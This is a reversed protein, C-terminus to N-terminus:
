LFFIVFDFAPTQFEPVMKACLAMWPVHPPMTKCCCKASRGGRSPRAFFLFCILSEKGVGGNAWAYYIKCVQFSARRACPFGPCIDHVNEATVLPNGRTKPCAGHLGHQITVRPSCPLTSNCITNIHGTGPARVAGSRTEFWQQILSNKFRIARKHQDKYWCRVGQRSFLFHLVPLRSVFFHWWGWERDHTRVFAKCIHGTGITNQKKTETMNHNSRGAPTSFIEIHSALEQWLKEVCQNRQRM